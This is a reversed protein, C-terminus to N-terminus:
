YDSFKKKMPFHYPLNPMKRKFQQWDRLLAGHADITEPDCDIRKNLADVNSM